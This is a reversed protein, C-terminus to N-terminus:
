LPSYISPFLYSHHSLSCTFFSLSFSLSSHLLLRNSAKRICFREASPSCLINFLRCLLCTSVNHYRTCPYRSPSSPYIPPSSTSTSPNFSQLSYFLLFLHTAQLSLHYLLISLPITLQYLFLSPCISSIKEWSSM